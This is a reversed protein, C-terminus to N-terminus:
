LFPDFEAYPDAEITTYRWGAPCAPPGTSLQGRSTLWVTRVAGQLSGLGPGPHEGQRYVGGAQEGESHEHEQAASLAQSEATVM